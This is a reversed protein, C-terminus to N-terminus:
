VEKEQYSEGVAKMTLCIGMGVVIISIIGFVTAPMKSKTYIKDTNM